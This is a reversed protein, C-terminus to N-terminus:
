RILDNHLLIELQLNNNKSSVPKEPVEATRSFHEYATQMLQHLNFVISYRDRQEVEQRNNRPRSVETRSFDVGM